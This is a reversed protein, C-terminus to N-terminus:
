EEQAEKDVEEEAARIDADAEPCEGEGEQDEQHGAQAQAEPDDDGGEGGLVPVEGVQHAEADGEPHVGGGDDDGDGAEGLAPAPDRVQIGDGGDDLGEPCAEEAGAVGGPRAQTVARDEHQHDEEDAHYDKVPHFFGEDVSNLLIDLWL